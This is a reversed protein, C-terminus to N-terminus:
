ERKQAYRGVRGCQRGCRAAVVFLVRCLARRGGLGGVVFRWGVLTEISDSWDITWRGRHSRSAITDHWSIVVVLVQEMQLRWGFLLLWLLSLFGLDGLDFEVTEVVRLV